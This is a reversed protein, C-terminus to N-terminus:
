LLSRHSPVPCNKSNLCPTGDRTVAGCNGANVQVNQREALSLRNYEEQSMGLADLTSVAQEAREDAAEREAQSRQFARLGGYEPFLGAAWQEQTKGTTDEGATIGTMSMPLAAYEERQAETLFGYEAPRLPRMPVGSATVPVGGVERQPPRPEAAHVVDPPRSDSPRRRQSPQARRTSQQGSVSTARRKRPLQGNPGRRSPAGRMDPERGDKVDKAYTRWYERDAAKLQQKRAKNKKRTSRPSSQWSGPGPPNVSTVGTRTNYSILKGLHITFSTGGRTKGGGASGSANLRLIGPIIPISKRVRFRGM